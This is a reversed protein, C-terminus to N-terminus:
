SVAGSFARQQPNDEALFFEIAAFHNSMWAKAQAVETLVIGKQGILGCEFEQHAVAALGVPLAAFDGALELQFAGVEIPRDGLEGAAPLGADLEGREKQM